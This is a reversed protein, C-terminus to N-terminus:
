WRICMCKWKFKPSRKILMAIKAIRAAIRWGEGRGSARWAGGSENRHLWLWIETGWLGNTIIFICFFVVVFGMLKNLKWIETRLIEGKVYIRVVLAFIRMPMNYICTVSSKCRINSDPRYKPTQTDSFLAAQNFTLQFGCLFNMYFNPSKNTGMDTCGEFLSVIKIQPQGNGMKCTQKDKLGGYMLFIFVIRSGWKARDELFLFFLYFCLSTM